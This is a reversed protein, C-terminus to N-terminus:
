NLTILEITRIINNVHLQVYMCVYMCVYLQLRVYLVTCAMGRYWRDGALAEKTRENIMCLNTDLSIRVSADFPVQFATRM